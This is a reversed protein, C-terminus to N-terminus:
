RTAPIALLRKRAELVDTKLQALLMGQTERNGAREEPVAWQCYTRFYESYIQEYNTLPDGFASHRLVEEGLHRLCLLSAASRLYNDYEQVVYRVYGNGGHFHEVLKRRRDKRVKFERLYDFLSKGHVLTFSTSLATASQRARHPQEAIRGILRVHESEWRRYTLPNELIRQAALAESSIEERAAAALARESEEMLRALAVPAQAGRGRVGQVLNGLRLSPRAAKYNGSGIALEQGRFM